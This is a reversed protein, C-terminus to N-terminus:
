LLELFAILDEAQRQSIGFQFHDNYHDIVQQLTAASNDHFYPATHKLGRLSPTDFANLDAINGTVAARGPDPTYAEFVSGDPQRFGLHLLPFDPINADSVFINAFRSVAPNAPRDFTEGDHCTRCHLDFVAKGRIAAPGEVPVSFGPEKPLPDAADDLSRLRLPYYLENEFLALSDLEKDLPRRAPEMHDRIAGAAQAQLTSARGDQLYPGTLAVNDIAPVARWVTITRRGPDDLSVVNPHLPITVRFVARTRVTTYDRGAGDDSDVARFLPGNPDRAFRAEVLAPSITFENRPDHCTSCTRGNGGFTGQFFVERGLEYSTRRPANGEPPDAAPPAAGACFVVTAAALAACGSIRTRRSRM